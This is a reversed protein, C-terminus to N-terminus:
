WTEEGKNNKPATYKNGDMKGLFVDANFGLHSIAKTLGDTIAMKPADENTRGKASNFFTRCGTFPGYSCSRDVTWISIHAVCATDGNSFNVFEMTSDWGWGEGIKGFENTMAMVQYHPDIATFKRSGFAIPKLYKPDSTSVRNWLILNNPGISKTITEKTM